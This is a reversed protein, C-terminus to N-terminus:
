SPEVGLARLTVTFAADIESPSASAMGSRSVMAVDRGAWPGGARRCAERMVRKCRNRMVANGMKRGAVFVVRGAPDSGDPSSDALVVLLPHSARRGHKFLRDIDSPSSITSVGVGPM